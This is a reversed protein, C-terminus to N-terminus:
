NWFLSDNWFTVFISVISCCLWFTVACTQRQTCSQSSLDDAPLAANDLPDISCQRWTFYSLPVCDRGLLEALAQWVFLNVDMEIVKLIMVDVEICLGTRKLGCPHVLQFKNCTWIWGFILVAMIHEDWNSWCKLISCHHSVKFSWFHQTSYFVINPHLVDNPPVVTGKLTFCRLTSLVIM